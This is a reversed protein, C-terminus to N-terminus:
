KRKNLEVGSVEGGGYTKMSWDTRYEYASTRKIVITGASKGEPGKATITGELKQADVNRFEITWSIGDSDNGCETIMEAYGDWRMYDSFTAGDKIKGEVFSALGGAVVECSWESENKLVTEEGDQTTTITSEREWNGEFYRNWKKALDQAQAAPCFALAAFIISLTKLRM